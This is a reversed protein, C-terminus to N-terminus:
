PGVEELAVTAKWQNGDDDLALFVVQNNAVDYWFSFNGPSMQNPDAKGWSNVPAIVSHLVPPSTDHYGGGSGDTDPSAHGVAFFDDDGVVAGALASGVPVRNGNEDQHYTLGDDGVFLGVGGFYQVGAGVVLPFEPV